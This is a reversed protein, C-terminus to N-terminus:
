KIVAVKVYNSTEKSIIRIFYIGAGAPIGQNDNGDWRNVNETLERIKQGKLNYISIRSDTLSRQDSEIVMEKGSFLPNPYASYKPATPLDDEDNGVIGFDNFSLTAAAWINNDDANQVFFLLSCYEHSDEHFPTFKYTLNFVTTRSVVDVNSLDSLAPTAFELTDLFVIGAETDSLALDDEIIFCKLENALTFDAPLKNNGRDLTVTVHINDLTDLLGEVASITVFSNEAETATLMEDVIDGYIVEQYGIHRTGNVVTAPLNYIDYYHFREEAQFNYYPADGNNPFFNIIQIDSGTLNAQENWIGNTYFNDLEVMNEILINERPLDFLNIVVERADNEIDDDYVKASMEFTYRGPEDDLIYSIENADPFILTEGAAMNDIMLTDADVNGPFNMSFIVEVDSVAFPSNNIIEANVFVEELYDITGDITFNAVEVDTVNVQFQGEMSFLFESYFGNGSMSLWAGNDGYYPNWYYSHNGGGNSASIYKQFTLGTHYDVVLWFVTDAAAASIELENWGTVTETETLIDETILSGPAIIGDSYLGVTLNGTQAGEPLYILATEPKFLTSDVGEYYDRFDFKVAWRHDSIEPYTYYFHRDDSGTHYSAVNERLETDVLNGSGPEFDLSWAAAVAIIISLIVLRKM